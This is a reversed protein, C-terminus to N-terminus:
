EADVGRDTAQRLFIRALRHTPDLRLAQEWARVADALRGMRQYLVGLNVHAEVYSPNLELAQLLSARAAELDGLERCSLGRRHHLDPFNPCLELARDYEVIAQAYWGLEHYKRALDAHANALRGLVGLSFRTPAEPEEAQIKGVEEAAQDYAGVESLAIALNVQAERYNPNLSLARRFFAVGKERAGQHIAIVGLMNYVSAYTPAQTVVRLLLQEAEPYQGAQFAATGQQLIQRIENAM